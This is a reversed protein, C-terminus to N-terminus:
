LHHKLGINGGTQRVQDRLARRKAVDGFISDNYVGMYDYAVVVGKPIRSGPISVIM